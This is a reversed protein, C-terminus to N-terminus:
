EDTSSEELNDLDVEFTEESKMNNEGAEKLISTGTIGLASSYNDLVRQMDRTMRQRQNMQDDIYNEMELSRPLISEGFPNKIFDNDFPKNLSDQKRGAKGVSTMKVFDPMATASPGSTVKRNKKIPENFVNRIQKQM